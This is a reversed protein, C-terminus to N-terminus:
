RQWQDELLKSYEGSAYLTFSFEESSLTPFQTGEKWCSYAYDAYRYYNRLYDPGLIEQAPPGQFQVYIGISRSFIRVYDTVGWRRLKVAVDPPTQGILLEAFSQEVLSRARLRPERAAFDLCQGIWRFVDKGVFLLMRLEAYRGALLKDRLVESPSDATEGGLLRAADKAGELVEISATADAFPHLILPPLLYSPEM